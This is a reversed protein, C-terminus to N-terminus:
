RWGKMSRGASLGAREPDPPAHSEHYTLCTKREWRRPPSPSACSRNAITEAERWIARGTPGRLMSTLIDRIMRLSEPEKADLVGSSMPRRMEANLLDAFSKARMAMFSSRAAWRPTRFKERELVRNAHHEFASHHCLRQTAIRIPSRSGNRQAVVIRSTGVDLGVAPSPQDSRAQVSKTQVMTEIM